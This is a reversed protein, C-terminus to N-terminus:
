GDPGARVGRSFDGRVEEVMVGNAMGVANGLTFSQVSKVIIVSVHLNCFPDNGHFGIKLLNVNDPGVLEFVNSVPIHKGCM